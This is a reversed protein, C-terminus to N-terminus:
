KKLLFSYVNQVRETHQNVDFTQLAKKRAATGLTLRLEPDAYLSAIAKALSDADGPEFYCRM